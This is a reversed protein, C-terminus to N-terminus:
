SRSLPLPYFEGRLLVAWQPTECACRSYHKDCGRCWKTAVVNTLERLEAETRCRCDVLDKNCRLCIM